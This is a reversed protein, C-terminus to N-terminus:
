STFKRGVVPRYWESDTVGIPGVTKDHKYIKDEVRMLRWGWVCCKDSDCLNVKAAYITGLSGVYFYKTKNSEYRTDNIEHCVRLWGHQVTKTINGMVELCVCVCPRRTAKDSIRSVLLLCLIYLLKLHVTVKFKVMWHRPTLSSTSWSQCKVQCRTVTRHSSLLSTRCGTSWHVPCLLVCWAPV